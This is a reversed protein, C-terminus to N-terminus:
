SDFLSALFLVLYYILILLEFFTQSISSVLEVCYKWPNM